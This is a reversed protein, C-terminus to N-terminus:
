PHRCTRLAPDESFQLLMEEVQLCRKPTTRDRRESLKARFADSFWDVGCGFTDGWSNQEQAFSEATSMSLLVSFLILSPSKM